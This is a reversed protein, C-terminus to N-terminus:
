VLSPRFTAAHVAVARSVATHPVTSSVHVAPIVHDRVMETPSVSCGAIVKKGRTTTQGHEPNSTDVVSAVTLQAKAGTRTRLSDGRRVRWVRARLCKCALARKSVDM